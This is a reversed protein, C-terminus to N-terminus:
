KKLHKMTLAVMEEVSVTGVGFISTDAKENFVSTWHKPIKAAGVAMGVISGVTAGNCDTDWGLVSTAIARTFDGRAVLLSAVCLATNNIAHVPGFHAYKDWLARALEYGDTAERALEITENVVKALRSQAPIVGLGAAM